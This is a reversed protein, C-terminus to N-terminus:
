IRPTVAMHKSVPQSGCCSLDSYQHLLAILALQLPLRMLIEQDRMKRVAEDHADRVYSSRGDMSVNM